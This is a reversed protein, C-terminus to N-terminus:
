GMLHGPARGKFTPQLNLESKLVRWDYLPKNITIFISSFLPQSHHIPVFDLFFNYNTYPPKMYLYYCSKSFMEKKREKIFPYDFTIFNSAVNATADGAFILIVKCFSIDFSYLWM